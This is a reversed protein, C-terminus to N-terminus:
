NFAQPRWVFEVTGRLGLSDRVLPFADLKNIKEDRIFTTASNIWRRGEKVQTIFCMSGRFKKLRVPGVIRYHGTPM